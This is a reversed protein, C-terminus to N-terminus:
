HRAMRRAGALFVALAILGMASGLLIVGHWGGRAYVYVGFASGMAGGMFFTAMFLSNLRGRAHPALAYIERQSLVLNASVGMDLVIAALGLLVLTLSSGQAASWTLAFSLAVMAMAVLSGAHAHGRDALRGAIPAAIAGAVGVLAFLAIGQQSLGYAPSALLLPVTSWFLSFAAFLGAHCMARVQLVPHELMLAKMSALLAAYRPAHPPQREPMARSLLAALAAIMVASGLFIAHWGLHSATFSSVPRALMIGLLLGSMINGVTRGRAAEAVMSAGYPVLVQAAVSSVGVLAMAALFPAASRSLGAALLGLAAVMLCRVVLRRNELVDGLPVIFLLGLGYGIQTLTVIWGALRLSIGTGESILGILPQAYYLNAVILGCGAALLLTLWAPLEDYQHPADAMTATTQTSVETKEPTSRSAGVFIESM